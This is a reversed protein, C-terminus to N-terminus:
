RPLARRTVPSRAPESCPDGLPTEILRERKEILDGLDVAKSVRVMTIGMESAPSQDCLRMGEDLFSFRLPGDGGQPLGLSQDVRLTLRPKKVTQAMVEDVVEGLGAAEGFSM